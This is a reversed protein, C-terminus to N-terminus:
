VDVIVEAEWHEQVQRVWLGHYTIAKVERGLRHRQTDLPEGGVRAQLTTGRIKVDFHGLVLRRSEAVYLLEALWDFLLDDLRDCALEISVPRSDSVDELNEIMLSCLARAADAFLVDLSPARVRLGFDATHEFIEYM